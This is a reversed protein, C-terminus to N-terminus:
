NQKKAKTNLHTQARKIEYLNDSNAYDKAAKEYESFLKPLFERIEELNNSNFLKQAEEIM